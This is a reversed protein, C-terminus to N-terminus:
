PPINTPTTPPTPISPPPRPHHQRPFPFPFPLTPHVIKQGGPGIGKLVSEDFESEPPHKPRQPLQKRSAAASTTTTFSSRLRPTPAGHHAFSDLVVAPRLLTSLSTFPRLM